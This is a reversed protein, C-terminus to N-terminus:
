SGAEAVPVLAAAGVPRIKAATAAGCPAIKAAPWASPASWGATAAGTLTDLRVWQGGEQERERGERRTVREIQGKRERWKGGGKLLARVM